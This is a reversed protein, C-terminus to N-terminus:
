LHKDSGSGFHENWADCIEQFHLNVIRGAENLQRASLGVYNALEVQPTLWFKAEGDPHAVHVHM